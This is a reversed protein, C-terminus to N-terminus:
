IRQTSILNQGTTTTGKGPREGFMPSEHGCGDEVARIGNGHTNVDDASEDAQALLEGGIGSQFFAQSDDFLSENGVVGGQSIDNQFDAWQKERRGLRRTFADPEVGLVSWWGQM